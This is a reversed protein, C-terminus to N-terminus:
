IGYQDVVQAHTSEKPPPPPEAAAPPAPPEAAPSPLAELATAELAAAQSEPTQPTPKKCPHGPACAANGKAAANVAPSPPPHGLPVSAAVAKQDLSSRATESDEKAAQAQPPAALPQAVPLPSAQVPARSTSAAAVPNGHGEAGSGGHGLSARIQLAGVALAASGGMALALKWTSRRRPAPPPALVVDAYAPATTTAGHRLLTGSDYSASPPPMVSLMPAKPDTREDREAAQKLADQILQRRRALPGACLRNLYAGVEPEQATIPVAGALETFFELATTFRQEKHHSLARMVVRELEAPYDKLWSRPPPVKANKVIRHLTEAPSSSAFPHRGTTMLYLMIGLSFLDARRDVAEGRAQEPAMFALKGAILKGQAMPAQHTAKAIGFDILKVAGSTSIMLNHPSVDCHVLGLPEFADDRLEHAAHLGKCAQRVIEAAMGLPMPAERCQKLLSTLAEGDIWEMVVYLVGDREGLDQYQAVNPHQIRSAVSAEALLMNELTEAESGEAILTKIAVLKQFGRTGRLRAAWVRSMGGKAVPALLEYRGFAEGSQLDSLSRRM